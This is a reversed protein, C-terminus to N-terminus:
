KILHQNAGSVQFFDQSGDIETGFDMSELCYPIEEGETLHFQPEFNSIFLYVERGGRSKPTDFIARKLLISNSNFNLFMFFFM